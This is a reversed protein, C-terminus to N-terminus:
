LNQPTYVKENQSEKEIEFLLLELVYAKREYHKLLSKVLERKGGFKDVDRVYSSELNELYRLEDYLEEYIDGDVNANDITEKRQNITSVLQIYHQSLEKDGAFVEAFPEKPNNSVMHYSFAGIMGALILLVAAKLRGGFLTFIRVQKPRDFRSWLGDSDAKEVKDWQDSNKEIFQELNDKAM